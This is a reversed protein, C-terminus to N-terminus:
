EFLMGLLEMAIWGFIVVGVAIAIQRDPLLTSIKM